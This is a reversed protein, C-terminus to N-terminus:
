ACMPLFVLFCLWFCCLCWTPASSLHAATPTQAHASHERYLRGNKRELWRTSCERLRMRRTSSVGSPLPLLTLQFLVCVCVSLV